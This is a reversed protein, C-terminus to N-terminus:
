RPRVNVTRSAEATRQYICDSIKEAKAQTSLNRNFENSLVHQRCEDLYFGGYKVKYFGQEELRRASVNPDVIQDALQTVTEPSMNAARYAQYFTNGVMAFVGVVGAFVLGAFALVVGPIGKRQQPFAM